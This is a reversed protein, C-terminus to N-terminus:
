TKIQINALISGWPNEGDLSVEVSVTGDPVSPVNLSECSTPITVNAKWRYVVTTPNGDTSGPITVEESTGKTTTGGCDVNATLTVAEDGRSTTAM